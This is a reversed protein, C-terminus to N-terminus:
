SGAAFVHHPGPTVFPAAFHVVSSQITYPFYVIVNYGERHELEIVVADTKSSSGPPLVHADYVLATARVEGAKAKAAFGTHLLEILEASPPHEQGNSSMALAIKGSSSLEAGNPYFEGYKALQQEAFPLVLDVLQQAEEKPTAAM